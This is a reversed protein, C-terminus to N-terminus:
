RTEDRTQTLRAALSCLLIAPLTPTLLFHLLEGPTLLIGDFLRQIPNLRVLEALPRSLAYAAPGAFRGWLSAQEDAVSATPFLTALTLALMTLAGSFLSVPLSFACGLAQGLALALAITALLTLLTTALNLAPPAGPLLLDLDLYEHYLISAGLNADTRALTLTLPQGPRLFNPPLPVVLNRAHPTQPPLTQTADGCSLTIALTLDEFNGLFPSGNLRFVPPSGSPAALTAPLPFTYSKPHGAALETYRLPIAEAIARILRTRPLQRYEQPLTDHAIRADLEREALTHLDPLTPTLRLRGDPLARPLLLLGMVLVAVGFPLLNGLYRCWWLRWPSLPKTFPLTLLHRDRDRAYAAAGCWLACILLACWALATGYATRILGPDQRGPLGGLAGVLLALLAPLLLRRTARRWALVVEAGLQSFLSPRPM